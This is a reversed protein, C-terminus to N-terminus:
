KIIDYCSRLTEDDVQGIRERIATVFDDRLRRPNRRQGDGLIHRSVALSANSEPHHELFELIEAVMQDRSVNLTVGGGAGYYSAGPGALNHSNTASPCIGM